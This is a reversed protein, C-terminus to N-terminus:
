YLGTESDGSRARDLVMAAAGLLGSNDDLRSRVIRVTKFPDMAERQIIRHMGPELLDFGAALGGGMIVLQPSFVHLLSTIGLGLCNAHKEVLDLCQHDGSRAGEFVDKANIEGDQVARKLYQADAKQATERARKALASGSAFAEFCGTAGCSCIPGDRDLRIHGIHCAMGKRGHLLNGDVVAGGGIGTSVTLYVLNQLDRGAGHRWEGFTAAIADNEVWVPLGIKQSLQVSVPFNEWGPLTPIGLVTGSTTDIPGASSLGLGAIRSRDTGDSVHDVMTEIQHLIATPGGAVDTPLATRSVIRGAEVLAARVQTGGLDVAIALTSEDGMEIIARCDM